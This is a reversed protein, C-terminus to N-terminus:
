YKRIIKLLKIKLFINAFFIIRDYWPFIPETYYPSSPSCNHLKFIYLIRDRLYITKNTIIQLGSLSTWWYLTNYSTFLNSMKEGQMKVSKIQVYKISLYILPTLWLNAWSTSSLTRAQEEFVGWSEQM